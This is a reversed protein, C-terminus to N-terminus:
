EVRSCSSGQGTLTSGQGTLTCSMQVRVPQKCARARTLLLWYEKTRGLIRWEIFDNLFLPFYHLIAQVRTKIFNFRYNKKLGDQNSKWNLEWIEYRVLFNNHIKFLLYSSQLGNRTSILKIAIERKTWLIKSRLSFNFTLLWGDRPHRKKINSGAM